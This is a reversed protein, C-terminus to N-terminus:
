LKAKVPKAVEAKVPHAALANDLRRRLTTDVHAEHAPDAAADRMRRLLDYDHEDRYPKSISSDEMVWDMAFDARIPWPCGHQQWCSLFSRLLGEEYRLRRRQDGQFYPNRRARAAKLALFADLHQWLAEFTM